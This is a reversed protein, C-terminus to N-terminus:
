GNLTWHVTPVWRIPDPLIHLAFHSNPRNASIASIDASGACACGCMVGKAMVLSMSAALEDCALCENYWSRLEETSRRHKEKHQMDLSTGEAKSGIGDMGIAKMQKSCNGKGRGGPDRRGNSM